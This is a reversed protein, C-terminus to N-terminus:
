SKFRGKFAIEALPKRDSPFERAQLDAPLDETVGPKGIAIVTQVQYEDAPIELATKIKMEEFGGMAHALYGLRNAELALALTAAGTDHAHWRLPRTEGSRVVQTQSFAVILVPAKPAWAQNFGILGEHIADFEATGNLAYVFRWPQSNSASPAWRAAELITLVDAEPLPDRAFARPSWRKLFMDDIPHDAHRNNIANM